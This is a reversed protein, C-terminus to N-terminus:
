MLIFDVSNSSAIKHIIIRHRQSSFQNKTLFRYTFYVFSFVDGTMKVFDDKPHAGRVMIVDGLIMYSSTIFDIGHSYVCRTGALSANQFTNLLIIRIFMFINIEHLEILLSRIIVSIM